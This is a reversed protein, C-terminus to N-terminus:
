GIKALPLRRRLFNPLLMLHFGHIWILYGEHYVELIKERFLKHVTSYVFWLNQQAKAGIENQNLPGYVDAIHHMIPWLNKKCFIDYFQFHMNQNIFVPHCNMAALVASVAEEDEVPIPANAYRIAGIWILRMEMHLSLLNEVDWAASWKGDKTKSLIVPLFYSVIIIGDQSVLQNDMHVRHSWSAFQRARYSRLFIFIHNLYKYDAVSVDIIIYRAESSAMVKNLSSAINLGSTPMVSKYEVYPTNWKDETEVLFKEAKFDDLTRIISGNGEYRNFKGGSFICYRYQVTGQEGPLFIGIYIVFACSFLRLRFLDCPNGEKTTWWPYIAPSCVLPISRVPDDCGLAPVNGSVRVEEGFGVAAEM